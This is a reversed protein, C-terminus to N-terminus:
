RVGKEKGFTRELDRKMPEGRFTIERGYKRRAIASGLDTVLDVAEDIVEPRRSYEVVELVYPDNPLVSRRQMGAIRLAIFDAYEEAFTPFDTDPQGF